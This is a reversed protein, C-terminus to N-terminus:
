RGSKKVKNWFMKIQKFNFPLLCYVMTICLSVALKVVIAGFYNVSDLRIYYLVFVAIIMVLIDPLFPFVFRAFSQKMTKKILIYYTVFFIINYTIGIALSAIYFSDCVGGIVMSTIILLLNIIGCKFTQDTREIALFISGSVSSLMQAWICISLYKFCIAASGWNPGFMLFVIESSCSFFVTTVIIGCFSLMRLMSFLIRRLEEYNYKIDRLYPHLVGTIVSTFIMNPYLNLSYAKNYYGLADDGWKKGIFLNDINRTFYNLVNFVFQYLSYTGLISFCERLSFKTFKMPSKIFNWMFALLMNLITQIILAYVGFHLYACVVAIIGTIVACVLTRVAIVKFKKDRILIANPVVNAADILAVVSIIPCLKLYENNGYIISIPISGLCVLIMLIIGILISFSFLKNQKKEDMDTFQIISAGLGMDAFLSFFGVIITLISVTGFEQPLILRALVMSIITQVIMTSYKALANYFTAKFFSM